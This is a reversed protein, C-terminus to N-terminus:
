NLDDFQLRDYTFIVVLGVVISIVVVIIYSKKANRATQNYQNKVQSVSKDYTEIMSENKLPLIQKNKLNAFITYKTIVPTYEYSYRTYSDTYYDNGSIWGEHKFFIGYTIKNNFMKKKLKLDKTPLDIKSSKTKVGDIFVNESQKSESGAYDWTWYTEMHTTSHGKSDTTTYTRTHMTYEEKTRKILQYQGTLEDLSVPKDTKITAWNIGTRGAGTKMLYEMRAKDNAVQMTQYYTAQQSRESVYDNSLVYGISGTVFVAILALVYRM